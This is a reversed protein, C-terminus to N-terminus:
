RRSKTVETTYGTPTDHHSITLYLKRYTVSWKIKYWSGCADAIRVIFDKADHPMMAADQSGNWRPFRFYYVQGSKFWHATREVFWEMADESCWGHCYELKQDQNQEDVTTCSCESSFEGSANYKSAM